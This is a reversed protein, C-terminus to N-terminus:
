AVVPVPCHQLRESKIQFVGFFSLRAKAVNAVRDRLQQTLIEDNTYISLRKYGPLENALAIALDTLQQRRLDPVPEVVVDTAGEDPISGQDGFVYFEACSSSIEHCQRELGCPCDIIYVREPPTRTFLKAGVKWKKTADGEAEQAKAVEDLAGAIRDTLVMVFRKLAKVSIVARFGSRDWFEFGRVKGEEHVPLIHFHAVANRMKIVFWRVSYGHAEAGKGREYALVSAPSVGWKELENIPDPPLARLLRERPLILLGLMCNILFSAEYNGSYRGLIHQTRAMFDREFQQLNYEM